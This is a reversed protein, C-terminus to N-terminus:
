LRRRLALLRRICNMKGAIIIKELTLVRGAIMNNLIAFDREDNLGSGILSMLRDRVEGVVTELLQGLTRVSSSLRRSNDLHDLVVITYVFHDLSGVKRISLKTMDLRGGPKLRATKKPTERM